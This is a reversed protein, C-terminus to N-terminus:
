KTYDTKLKKMNEVSDVLVDIPIYDAMAKKVQYSSGVNLMWYILKKMDKRSTRKTYNRYMNLAINYTNPSKGEDAIRNLFGLGGYEKLNEIVNKTRRSIEAGKLYRYLEQAANLLVTHENAQVFLKDFMESSNSNHKVAPITTINLDRCAQLRRNGDILVFDYAITVPNILGTTKISNVLNRYKAMKRNTRVPPNFPSTKIDKTDIMMLEMDNTTTTSM